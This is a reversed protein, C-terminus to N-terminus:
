AFKGSEDANAQNAPLIQRSRPCKGPKIAFNAQKTPPWQRNTPPCKQRVRRGGEPAAGRGVEEGLGGGMRSESGGWVLPAAQNPSARGQSALAPPNLRINTPEPQTESM